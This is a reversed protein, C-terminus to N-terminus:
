ICKNNKEIMILTDGDNTLIAIYFATLARRIVIIVQEWEPRMQKSQQPQQQKQLYIFM